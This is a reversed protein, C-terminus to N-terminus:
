STRQAGVEMGARSGQIMCTVKGAGCSPCRHEAVVLNGRRSGDRAGRWRRLRLVTGAREEGELAELVTGGRAAALVRGVVALRATHGPVSDRAEGGALWQRLVRAPWRRSCGPCRPVEALGALCCAAAAGPLLLRLSVTLSAALWPLVPFDRPADLSAALGPLGGQALGGLLQIAAGGAACVAILRMSERLGSPGRLRGHYALAWAVVGGGLCLLTRTASPERPHSLRVLLEAAVLVIGALSYLAGRDIWQPAAEEESVPLAWCAGAVALLVAADPVAALGVARPFPEGAVEVLLHTRTRRLGRIRGAPLAEGFVWLRGQDLEVAGHRLRDGSALAKRAAGVVAQTRSREVALLFADAPYAVRVEGGRSLDFTVGETRVGPNRFAAIEEWPIRRVRATLGAQVLLGAPAAGSIRWLAPLALIAGLILIGPLPRAAEEDPLGASYMWLSFLLVSVPLALMAAALWLVATTSLPRWEGRERRLGRGLDLLGLFIALFSAGLALWAISALMTAPARRATTDVVRVKVGGLQTRWRDVPGRIEDESAVLGPLTVVGRFAVAAGKEPLPDRADLVVVTLVSGGGIVLPIHRAQQGETVPRRHRVRVSLEPLPEGLVEVYEGLPLEAGAEFRSPGHWQRESRDRLHFAFLSTAAFFLALAGRLAISWQLIRRSPAAAASPGDSGAAPEDPLVPRM